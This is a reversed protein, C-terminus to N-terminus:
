LCLWDCVYVCVCFCANVCVCMCVCFRSVGFHGDFPGSEIIWLRKSIGIVCGLYSLCVCPEFYGSGFVLDSTTYRHHGATDYDRVEWEWGLDGSGEWRVGEWVWVSTNAYIM